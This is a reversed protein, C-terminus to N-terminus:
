ISATERKRWDETAVERWSVRVLLWLIFSALHCLSYLDAEQLRSGLFASVSDTSFHLIVLFPLYVGLHLALILMFLPQFAPHHWFSSCYERPSTYSSINWIYISFGFNAALRSFSSSNPSYLLCPCLAIGSCWRPERVFSYFLLFWLARTRATRNELQSVKPLDSPKESGIEEM